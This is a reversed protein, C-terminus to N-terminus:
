RFYFLVGIVHAGEYRNFWDEAVSAAQYLSVDFANAAALTAVERRSFRGRKKGIGALEFEAVIQCGRGGGIADVIKEDDAISRLIAEVEAWAFSGDIRYIGSWSLPMNETTLRTITAPAGAVQFHKGLRTVESRKLAGRKDRRDRKQKRSRAM